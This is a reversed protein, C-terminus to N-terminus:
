AVAERPAPLVALLAVAADHTALMVDRVKPEKVWFGGDVREGSGSEEITERCDELGNRLAGPELNLTITQGTEAERVFEIQSRLNSLVGLCEDAAASAAECGDEIEQVNAIEWAAEWLSNYLREGNVATSALRWLAYEVARRTAEDHITITAM